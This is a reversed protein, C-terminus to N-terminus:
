PEMMDAMPPPMLAMIEAMAPTMSVITEAMTDTRGSAMEAECGGRIESASSEWTRTAIQSKRM